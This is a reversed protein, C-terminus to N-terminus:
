ENTFVWMYDGYGKEEMKERPIFELAASNLCYRLNNPQPGDYFVHGLHSDAIRSRVETRVEPLSDDVKRIIYYPDIPKTFSPWGTGSNYKTTSSFLPEGSVIDVYIGEQKNDWFKNEFARETANGQTVACQLDTLKEKIKTPSPKQYKEMTYSCWVGEIFQDRGSAERYSTYREPNKKYFDQESEKVPHFKVFKVIPTVIPDEFIGSQQLDSKSKEALKQQMESHYFIYSEYEPGRDYFSGGKDTPDFQRWYYDLLEEYSIVMPDFRVQIAEIKHKVGRGEAYGSIVSDPGSLREYAAEMCWYCGGAFTAVQFKETPQLATQAQMEESETVSCGGLFLFILAYINMYKLM